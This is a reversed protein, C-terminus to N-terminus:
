GGGTIDIDATVIANPQPGAESLKTNETTLLGKFIGIFNKQVKSGNKTTKPQSKNKKQGPKRIRDLNL